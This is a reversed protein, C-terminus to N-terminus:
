IVFRITEFAEAYARKIQFGRTAALSRFIEASNQMRVQQSRYRAIASLKKDLNWKDLEVFTSVDGRITNWPMEYGLITTHKFARVCEESVIKHDQHIDYTTPCFVADPSCARYDILLDLIDQRHRHFLRVPYNKLIIRDESVGLVSAAAELESRLCSTSFAPNSESCPSFVLYFIDSGAQSFRSISGGCGFEADDLHPALILITDFFM